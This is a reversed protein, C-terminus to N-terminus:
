QANGDLTLLFVNIVPNASVAIAIGHGSRSVPFAYFEERNLCNECRPKSVCRVFFRRRKFPSPLFFCFNM